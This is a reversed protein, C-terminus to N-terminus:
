SEHDPGLLSSDIPGLLQKFEEEGLLERYAYSEGYVTHIATRICGRILDSMNPVKRGDKRAQKTLDRKLKRLMGLEYPDLRLFTRYGKTTM